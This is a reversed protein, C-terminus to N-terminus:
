IGISVWTVSLPGTHWNGTGSLPSATAFQFGTGTVNFSNAWWQSFTQLSNVMVVTGPQTYAVAFGAAGNGNGDSVSTGWQILLGSGYPGILAYSPNGLGFQVNASAGSPGAPGQPGAVGQPGAPGTAGPELEIASIAAQILANVGLLQMAQSTTLAGVVPLMAASIASAPLPASTVQDFVQNGLSDRLVLRIDGDGFVVCSGRDDLVIPNTNLITENADQWTSVEQLTGPIYTALTGSEYPAGNADVFQLQPPILLTAM